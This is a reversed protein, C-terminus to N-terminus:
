VLAAKLHHRLMDLIMLRCSTWHWQCVLGRERGTYCCLVWGSDPGHQTERWASATQVFLREPLLVAPVPRRRDLSALPCFQNASLMSLRLCSVCIRTVAITSQVRVSIIIDVLFSNIVSKLIFGKLESSLLCMYMRICLFNIACFM